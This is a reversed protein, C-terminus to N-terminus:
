LGLTPVQIKPSAANHEKTTGMSLRFLPQTLSPTLLSRGIRIRQVPDLSILLVIDVFIM